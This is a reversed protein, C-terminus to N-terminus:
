NRLKGEKHMQSINLLLTMADVTANQMEEKCVSDPMPCNMHSIRRKMITLISAREGFIQQYEEHFKTMHQLKKRKAPMWNTTDIHMEDETNIINLDTGSSSQSDESPSPNSVFAMAIPYFNIHFIFTEIFIDLLQNINQHPMQDSHVIPVLITKLTANNQKNEAKFLSRM